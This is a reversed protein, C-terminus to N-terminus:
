KTPCTDSIIAVGCAASPSPCGQLYLEALLTQSAEESTIGPVDCFYDGRTMVDDTSACKLDCSIYYYSDGASDGCGVAFLALCVFLARM